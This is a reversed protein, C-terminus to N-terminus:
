AAVRWWRQHITKAELTRDLLICPEDAWGGPADPLTLLGRDGELIDIGKWYPVDNNVLDHRAARLGIFRNASAIATSEDQVDNLKLEIQPREGYDNYSKECDANNTRDRILESEYTGQTPNWAYFVKLNNVILDHDTKSFQATKGIIDSVRHIRGIDPQDTAFTMIGIGEGRPIRAAQAQALIRDVMDVGAVPRNIVSAFKWGPLLSAMTKYDQIRLDSIDFTSHYRMLYHIIHAPHEILAAATGTIEGSGDTLGRISCSLPELAAKDNAGFDYYSALNGQGDVGSPYFVYHAVAIVAGNKDYVNETAANYEAETSKSFGNQALYKFPDADAKVCLLPVKGPWDGFILNEPKGAVGGSGGATRHASWTDANITHPPLQLLRTESQEKLTFSYRYFDHFNKQFVGKFILGDTSIDDWSLGDCWIYIRGIGGDLKRIEENDQFRDDNAIEVNVTALSYKFNRFDFITSVNFYRLIKGEFLREGISINKTAFRKTLGDFDLDVLFFVEKAKKITDSITSM